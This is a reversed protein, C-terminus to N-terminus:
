PDQNICCIAVAFEVCFLHASAELSRFGKTKKTTKRVMETEPTTKM